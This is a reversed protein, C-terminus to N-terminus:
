RGRFMASNMVSAFNTTSVGSITSITNNVAVTRLNEMTEKQKQNVSSLSVGINSTVRDGNANNIALHGQRMMAGVIRDQVDNNGQANALANKIAQQREEENLPRMINVNILRDVDNEQTFTNTVENTYHEQWVDNNPSITMSGEGYGYSLLPQVKIIGSANMQEVAVVEKYNLTIIGTDKHYRVNDTVWDGNVMKTGVPSLDIQEINSAPKLIAHKADIAMCYDDNLFDATFSNKFNDVIFGSKFADKFNMNATDVELKSLLVEEEVKEIRRELAGIDQMRYRKFKNQTIIVDNINYTYANIYLTYITISNDVEDPLVPNINPIGCIVEINGASTVIIRDMRPIYCEINCIFQENISAVGNIVDVSESHLQLKNNDIRPRFDIYKSLRDNNYSPIDEFAIQDKYSDTCFYLGDTSHNFYSYSVTIVQGVLTKSGVYKISSPMYLTDTQGNDFIFDSSIDTGDITRVYNLKFGDAKKLIVINNLSSNSITHEETYSSDKGVLTKTKYMGSNSMVDTIVTVDVESGSHLNSIDLVVRNGRIEIISNPKGTKGNKICITYKDVSSSFMHNTNANMLTLTGGSVKTKIRKEFHIITPEVTKAIGNELKTLLTDNHTLNYNDLTSNFGDGVIKKVTLFSANNINFTPKTIYVRLKNENIVMSNIVYCNGITGGSSNVLNLRGGIDLQGNEVTVDIFTNYSLQVISNIFVKTDRAKPIDIRTTHETRVEWGKVYAVGADLVACLKSEDGGNEKNYVGGNNDTHVITQGNIEERDRETNKQLHEKLELNFNDVVFDGLQDYTRRTLVQMLSPLVQNEERPKQAVENHEIKVLQIFNAIEEESLENKNVLLGTIQYRDAGVSLENMTGLANDLLTEDDYATVVRETIKLGINAFTNNVDDIDEQYKNIMLLQKPVHVFTQRIYFIGEQLVVASGFGAHNEVNGVKVTETNGNSLEITILEDRKYTLSGDVPNANDYNLYLTYTDTNDKDLIFEVKATMGEANKCVAGQFLDLDNLIVTDSSLKLYPISKNYQIQGGTVATKNNYLTDALTGIQSQLISQLQNLERTQVVHGSKFLVRHFNKSKDFDDFYPSQPFTRLQSNRIDTAITM